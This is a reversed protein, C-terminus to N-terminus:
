YQLDGKCRSSASVKRQMERPAKVAGDAITLPGASQASNRLECRVDQYDMAILDCSDRWVGGRRELSRAEWIRRGTVTRGTRADCMVCRFATWQTAGGDASRTTKRDGFAGERSGQGRRCRRVEFKTRDRRCVVAMVIV